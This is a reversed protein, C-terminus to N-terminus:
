QYQVLRPEEEEWSWSVTVMARVKQLRVARATAMMVRRMLLTTKGVWFAATLPSEVQTSSYTTGSRSRSRSRSRSGATNRWVM